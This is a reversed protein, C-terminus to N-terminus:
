LEGEIRRACICWLDVQTDPSGIKLMYGEARFQAGTMDAAVRITDCRPAGEAIPLRPCAPSFPHALPETAEDPCM